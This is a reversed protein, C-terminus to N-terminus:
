KLEEDINLLEKLIKRHMKVNMSLLAINLEVVTFSVAWHM